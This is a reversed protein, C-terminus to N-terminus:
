KLRDALFRDAIPRAFAEQEANFGHEAGPVLLLTIARGAAELAAAMLRSQDTPVRTDADGHVLLVPAAISAAQLRPSRPAVGGPECVATVYGPIDVNATTQKWAAVDTVPFYAVIARVPANRAGALLAVQGGQSFGVIGLRQADVGPQNALWRLVDVVDDPQRLGCDDSGGSPPWGRMSLALAVYGEDAYRRARSEVVAAGNTGPTQWGHLVILAPKSGSSIEPRYLIGGLQVSGGSIVVDFRGAGTPTVASPATPVTGSSGSGCGPASLALALALVGCCCARMM